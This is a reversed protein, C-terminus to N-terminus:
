VFCVCSVCCAFVVVVDCLVLEFMPHLVVSLFLYLCVCAFLCLVCLVCVVCFVVLCVFFLCRLGFM